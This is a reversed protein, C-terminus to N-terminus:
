LLVCLLRPKRRASLAALTDATRLALLLDIVASRSVNEWRSIVGNPPMTRVQEIAADLTAALAASQDSAPRGREDDTGAHAPGEGGPVEDIPGHHACGERWCLSGCDGTYKKTEADMAGPYAKMPGSM